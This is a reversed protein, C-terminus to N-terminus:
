IKHTLEPIIAMRVISAAVRAVIVANSTTNPLLVVTDQQLSTTIAM